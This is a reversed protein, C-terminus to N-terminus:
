LKAHARDRRAAHVGGHPRRPARGQAAAAGQECRLGARVDVPSSTAAIADLPVLLIGVRVRVFSFNNTLTSERLGPKWVAATVDVCVRGRDCVHVVHSKLALLAGVEVPRVFDVQAISRTTPACRRPVRGRSTIVTERVGPPM